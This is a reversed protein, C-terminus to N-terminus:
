RTKLPGLSVKERSQTVQVPRFCKLMQFSFSVPNIHQEELCARQNVSLVALNPLTLLNACKGKRREREGERGGM